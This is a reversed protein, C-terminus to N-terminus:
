YRNGTNKNNLHRNLVVKFKGLGRKKALMEMNNQYTCFFFMSIVFFSFCRPSPGLGIITAIITFKAEISCQNKHMESPKQCTKSCFIM